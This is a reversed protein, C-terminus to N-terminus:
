AHRRENLEVDLEWSILLEPKYSALFKLAGAQAEETGLKLVVTPWAADCDEEWWTDTGLFSAQVIENPMTRALETPLYIGGHGPTTVFAAGETGLPTVSDITGWPSWSGIKIM